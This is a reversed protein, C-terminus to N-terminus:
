ALATSLFTIIVRGGLDGPQGTPGPGLANGSSATANSIILAPVSQPIDTITAVKNSAAPDAYVWGSTADVTLGVQTDQLNANMAYAQSLSIELPQNVLSILYLQSLETPALPPFDATAGYASKPDIYTGGPFAGFTRNSAEQALGLINGSPNSSIVNGGRNNTLPYALNSTSGLVTATTQQVETGPLIGAYVNFDTAASPKGASAVTVAPVNGAPCNYLIESSSQSEGTGGDTYTCIIYYSQAPAGAVAHNAITIASTAPGAVGALANAGNGPPLTISGTTQQFVIDGRKWSGSQSPTVLRTNPQLISNSPALQPEYYPITLGAM